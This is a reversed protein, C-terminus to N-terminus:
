ALTYAQETFRAIQTSADRMTPLVDNGMGAFEPADPVPWEPNEDHRTIMEAGPLRAVDGSIPEHSSSTAVARRSRVQTEPNQQRAYAQTEPLEQIKADRDVAYRSLEYQPHRDMCFSTGLVCVPDRASWSRPVSSVSTRLIM